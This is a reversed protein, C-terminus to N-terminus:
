NRDRLLLLSSIPRCCPYSRIISGFQFISQSESRLKLSSVARPHCEDKSWNTMLWLWQALRPGASCGAAAMGLLVSGAFQVTPCEGKHTDMQM